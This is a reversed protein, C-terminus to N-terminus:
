RTRPELGQHRVLRLGRIEPAETTESPKKCQHPEGETRLFNAPIIDLSNRHVDFRALDHGGPGDSSGPLSNSHDDCGTTGESSPPAPSDGPAASFPCATRRESRGAPTSTSTASHSCSQDSITRATLVSLKPSCKVPEITYTSRSWPVFVEASGSKIMSPCCRTVVM